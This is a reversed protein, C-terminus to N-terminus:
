SIGRTEDTMHSAPFNGLQLNWYSCWQYTTWKEALWTQSGPLYMMLFCRYRSWTWGNEMTTTFFCLTYRAGWRLIICRSSWGALWWKGHNHYLFLPYVKGGMSTHYLTFILWSAVWMPNTLCCPTQRSLCWNTLQYETEVFDYKIITRVQSELSQGYGCSKEMISCQRLWPKDCRHCSENFLLIRHEWPM